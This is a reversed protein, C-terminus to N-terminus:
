ALPNKPGHKRLCCKTVRRSRARRAKALHSFVSVLRLRDSKRIEAFVEDVDPAATGLRHMGTDIKLHVRARGPRRKAVAVIEAVHATSTVTFDLDHDLAAQVAWSPVPSLILIPIKADVARLQCGEDVSAVALWQAGAGILVEAVDVAGHGYADSKVVAMLRPQRKAGGEGGLWSLVLQVNHEIAGLDVEVWADRRTSSVTLQRSTVM